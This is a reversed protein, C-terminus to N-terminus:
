GVGIKRRNGGLADYFTRILPPERFWLGAHSFKGYREFGAEDEFIGAPEEKEFLRFPVTAPVTEDAAGDFPFSYAAWVRIRSLRSSAPIRSRGLSREERGRGEVLPVLLFM